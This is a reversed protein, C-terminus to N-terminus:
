ENPVDGYQNKNIDGAKALYILLIIGLPPIIFSYAWKGTMNMDHLRRVIVAFSPVLTLPRYFFVFIGVNSYFKGIPLYESFPLDELNLFNYGIQRDILIVLFYVICWYLLFYWFEARSARGNFNAYNKLCKILQDKGHYFNKNNTMKKTRTWIKTTFGLYNLKKNVDKGIKGYGLLSVQFESKPINKLQKWLKVKQQHSYEFFHRQCMLVSMVIYESMQSSLDPDVLRTIKLKNNLNKLKIHDVGAGLSHVLKLNPFKNLMNKPPDWVLAIEIKSSNKIEKPWSLLNFGKKRLLTKWPKIDDWESYFAIDIINKNKM